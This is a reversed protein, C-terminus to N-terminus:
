EPQVELLIASFEEGTIRETQLADVLDAAIKAWEPLAYTEKEHSGGLLHAVQGDSVTWSEGTMDNLYNALPCSFASDSDGVIRQTQAWAQVSEWDILKQILEDLQNNM